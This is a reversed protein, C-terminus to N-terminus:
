DVKGILLVGPDEIIKFGYRQVVLEQFPVDKIHMYMEEIGANRVGRFGERMLLKFAQAKDRKPRDLDLFMMAEAFMKVQGYGVIGKDDEIVADIISNHRNPMGMVGFWHERWIRDIELVDSESFTRLIM